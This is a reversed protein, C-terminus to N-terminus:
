NSSRDQWRYDDSREGLKKDIFVQIKEYITNAAANEFLEGGVSATNFPIRFLTKKQWMEDESKIGSHDARGKAMQNYIWGADRHSSEHDSGWMLAVNIPSLVGKGNICPTKMAPSMSLSKFRKVPSILVLAKVDQGQKTGDPLPQWSWDTVAWNVAHITTEHNAVVTLLEINLEGANNKRMLFRKCTDIDIAASAVQAKKFDKYNLPDELGVVQTSLGHGRLDPVIVAHGGNRQLHEALPLMQQRDMGWDHVLIIPVTKKENVGPYWQCKLTVGDRTEISVSESPPIETEDKKGQGFAPMTISSVFLLAIWLIGAQQTQM